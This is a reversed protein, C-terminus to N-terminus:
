LIILYSLIHYKSDIASPGPILMGFKFHTLNILDGAATKYQLNGAMVGKATAEV